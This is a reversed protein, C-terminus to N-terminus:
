RTSNNKLQLARQLFSQSAIKEEAENIAKLLNNQNDTIENMVMTMLAWVPQM